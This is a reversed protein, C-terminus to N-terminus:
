GARSAVGAAWQRTARVRPSTVLEKSLRVLDEPDETSSVTWRNDAGVPPRALRKVIVASAIVCADAEGRARSGVAHDALAETYVRRGTSADFYPALRLLADLIDRERQMLRLNVSRWWGMPEAGGTGPLESRVELWLPKLQQFQQLTRRRSSAGQAIPPILFGTAVLVAALGALSFAAQTSLWDWNAGLWRAVVATYKLVDYLVTCSAGAAITLLGFRLSGPVHRSWRLCLVTMTVAAVTHAALYLVIMERIYPTTAYYTDLDRLRQVPADGLAFLVAIAAMATAYAGLCLRTQRRTREADENGRWHILLVISIGDFATLICYVVPAAINPVGFWDNIVGLHPPAATVFLLAGTFLTACVSRLLPDKPNKRLAWLKFLTAILLVGASCLYANGASM